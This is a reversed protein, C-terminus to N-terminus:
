RKPCCVMNYYNKFKSTLLYFNWFYYKVQTYNM